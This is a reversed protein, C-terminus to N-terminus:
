WRESYTSGTNVKKVKKVTVHNVMTLHTRGHM